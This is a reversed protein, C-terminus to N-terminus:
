DAGKGLAHALEATATITDAVAATRAREAAAVEEDTRALDAASALGAEYRNRTIRQAEHADAVIRGTAHERAAASAAHATATRVDLAVVSEVRRREARAAELDAAAAAIRAGDGGALSVSWRGFVGATWSSSRHGFSDGNGEVIGMASVQPFELTRRAATLAAEAAREAAAARLVEPRARLAGPALDPTGAPPTGGSSPTVLTFPADLPASMLSNLSARAIEDDAAAASADAEARDARGQLLLVAADTEFGADRRDRVLRLDAAASAASARVSAVTASAVTAHAFARTVELVLDSRARRQEATAADAAADAGRIAAAARGGDFLLQEITVGIRHDTTDSPHNLAEVAFDPAAFRRQALLFGFALVPQTTRQWSEEIALRPALTSRAERTRARAATAADAAEAVAPHAALARGIAEDLTLPPQAGAAGAHLLLFLAAAGVRSRVM